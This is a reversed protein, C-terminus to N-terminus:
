HKFGAALHRTTSPLPCLPFSTSPNLYFDIGEAQFFCVQRSQLVQLGPLQRYFSRFPNDPPFSNVLSSWIPRIPHYITNKKYIDHHLKWTLQWAERKNSSFVFWTVQSTLDLFSEFCKLFPLSLVVFSFLANGKWHSTCSFKQLSWFGGTLSCIKEWAQTRTGIRISLLLDYASWKVESM